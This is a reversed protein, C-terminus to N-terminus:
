NRSHSFGTHHSRDRRPATTTYVDYVATPPLPADGRRRRRRPTRWDVTHGARSGRRGTRVGGRRRLGPPAARARPPSTWTQPTRRSRPSTAPRPPPARSRSSRSRSSGSTAAAAGRRRREGGSWAAVGARGDGRRGAAPRAAPRRRAPAEASPLHARM